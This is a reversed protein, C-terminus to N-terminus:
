VFQRYFSSVVSKQVPPYSKLLILIQPARFLTAPVCHVVTVPAQPDFGSGSFSYFAANIQPLTARHSGEHALHLNRRVLFNGVSAHARSTHSATLRSKM